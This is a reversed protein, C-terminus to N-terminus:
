LFCFKHLPNIKNLKKRYRILMFEPERESARDYKREM